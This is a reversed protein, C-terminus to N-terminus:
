VFYTVSFWLYKGSGAVIASNTQTTTDTFYVVNTTGFVIAADSTAGLGTKACTGIADVASTFPLGTVQMTGVAGTTDKNGIYVSVTVQRGVKTYFGTATVPTLPPTTTGVLTATWTGEEYDALLESTGTGPTASFDIGKGSTGIILNGTSVVVDGGSQVEVRTANGAGILVTTGTRGWVAFQTASNIGLFAMNVSNYAYEIRGDAAAGTDFQAMAGQARVRLHTGTAGASGTNFLTGDYTLKVGTSPVKTANTFLVSNASLAAIPAAQVDAITAKVTAGSQVIPLVETGGLPTTAATLQSIKLDAM